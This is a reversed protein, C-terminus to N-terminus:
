EKNADVNEQKPEDQGKGGPRTEEAQSEQDSDGGQDSPVDEVDDPEADGAAAENQAQLASPEYVNAVVLEMNQEHDAFEVGEPLKIDSLLLKDETSELAELSVELAEPLDAPKAKIEVHEIAQLVVLGAREAPSEGMGTLHIPVETVIAENQKITHFAVHRVRHKVPDVDITKIIALKKKGDIVLHVPSHKGAKHTVKTTEVLPSQTHIPDSKGGYVVSPVMGSERLKKVQKGQATRETLKLSIDM